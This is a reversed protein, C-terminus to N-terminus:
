YMFNDNFRIFRRYNKLELVELSTIKTFEDLFLLRKPSAYMQYFM